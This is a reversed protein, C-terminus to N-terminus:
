AFSQCCNDSFVQCWYLPFQPHVMKQHCIQLHQQQNLHDDVLLFFCNDIFIQICYRIQPIHPFVQEKQLQLKNYALFYANSNQRQLFLSKQPFIFMKFCNTSFLIKFHLTTKFIYVEEGYFLFLEVVKCHVLIKYCQVYKFLIEKSKAILLEKKIKIGYM